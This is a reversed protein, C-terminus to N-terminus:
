EHCPINGDIDLDKRLTGHWSLIYKLQSNINSLEGVEKKYEKSEEEFHGSIQKCNKLEEELRVRKEQERLLERIEARLENFGKKSKEINKKLTLNRGDIKLKYGFFVILMVIITGCLALETYNAM